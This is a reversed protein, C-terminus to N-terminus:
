GFVIQKRGLKALTCRQCNPGIDDLIVRLAAGRDEKSPLYSEQAVNEQYASIGEAGAAIDDALVEGLDRSQSGADVDRRYLPGVGLERYFKIRERLASKSAPDLTM